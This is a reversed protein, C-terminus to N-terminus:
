SALMQEVKREISSLYRTELQAISLEDLDWVKQCASSIEEWYARTDFVLWKPEHIQSKDKSVIIGSDGFLVYFPNEM